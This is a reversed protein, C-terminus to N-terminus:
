SVLEISTVHLIKGDADLSGGVKVQKGEYQKVGGQDDLQYASNNSVKLVYRTGDKVITGMLTLATPPQQPQAPPNPQQQDPQPVPRDPPPLPQPAPQPKQLQSWAILQPGLISTPLAPSPQTQPDQALMLPLSVLIFVVTALSSTERKVICRRFVFRGLMHLAISTGDSARTTRQRAIVDPIFFM